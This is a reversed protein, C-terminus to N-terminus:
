STAALPDDDVAQQLRAKLAPDLYVTWSDLLEKSAKRYDQPDELTSNVLDICLPVLGEMAPQGTKRAEDM